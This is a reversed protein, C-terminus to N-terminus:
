DFKISENLQEFKIFIDKYYGTGIIEALTDSVHQIVLLFDDIPKLLVEEATIKVQRGAPTDLATTLDKYMEELKTRLAETREKLAKMEASATHFAMDDLVIDQKLKM